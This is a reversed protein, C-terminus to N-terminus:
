EKTEKASIIKRLEIETYELQRSVAFLEGSISYCKGQTHPSLLKNRSLKGMVYSFHRISGRAGKVIFLCWNMQRTAHQLETGTPHLRKSFKVPNSM